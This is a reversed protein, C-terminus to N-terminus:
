AVGSTGSSGFYRAINSYIESSMSSCDRPIRLLSPPLGTPFLLVFRWRTRMAIFLHGEHSLDIRNIMIGLPIWM